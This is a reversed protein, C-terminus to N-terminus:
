HKRRRGLEGRDHADPPDQNGPLWGKAAVAARGWAEAKEKSTEEGVTLATTKGNADVAVVILWRGGVNAVKAYLVGDIIEAM